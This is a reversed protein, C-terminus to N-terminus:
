HVVRQIATSNMIKYKIRDPSPTGGKVAWSASSEQTYFAIYLICGTCM